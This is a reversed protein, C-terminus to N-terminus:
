KNKGERREETAKSVMRNLLCGKEFNEGIKQKLFFVKIKTKIVKLTILLFGQNGEEM